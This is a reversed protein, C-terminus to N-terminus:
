SPPPSTLIHTAIGTQAAAAVDPLALSLLMGHLDTRAATIKEWLYPSRVIEDAKLNCFVAPGFSKGLRGFNCDAVIRGDQKLVEYFFAYIDSDAKVVDSLKVLTGEEAWACAKKFEELSLNHCNIDSLLLPHPFIDELFYGEEVSGTSRLVRNSTVNEPVYFHKYSANSIIPKDSWWCGLIRKSPIGKSIEVHLSSDTPRFEEKSVIGEPTMLLAKTQSQPAAGCAIVSDPPFDTLKLTPEELTRRLQGLLFQANVIPALISCDKKAQVADNISFVDSHDSMYAIGVSSQNLQNGM